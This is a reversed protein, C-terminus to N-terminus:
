INRENGLFISLLRDNIEQVVENTPALLARKEFFNPQRYNSLVSPYVFNILDSGPDLSDKILLDDPIEIVAEGDNTGGVKGEGLDLLWQAFLKTQEMNYSSDSVLQLRMNKTLRLVKCESWTYSSSLSSNVIDQKSGNQVVPLIQRFDGGFAIVKSDFPLTNCNLVDKLTRDLAEFARNHIM